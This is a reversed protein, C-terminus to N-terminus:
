PSDRKEIAARMREPIPSKTFSQPDVHVYVTETHALLTSEGRRRVESRVTMSTNGLKLPLVSIELEDDYRAPSKWETIQKVLQLEPNGNAGKDYYGLARMFEGFAVDVYEGYRSNFVVKQADCEHYRVRLSHVFPKLEM